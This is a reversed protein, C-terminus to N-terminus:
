PDLSFVYADHLDNLDGPVLDIASTFAVQHGNASLLPGFSLDPIHITTPGPASIWTTTDALRDFLFVSLVLSHEPPPPQGPVLDTAGSTFAVYRGDASIASQNSYGNGGGAGSISRSVLTTTRASRDYVFVQDVESDSGASFAVAGGDASITVRAGSQDGIRVRGGTTRDYLYLGGTGGTDIGQAATFALFRGDASMAFDGASGATLPTGQAHSVLLTKGTTRDWLFLDPLPGDADIQGPVLDTASSGFAIWRGDDSIQPGFSDRGAAVTPGATSHSVLTTSGTAHDWLYINVAPHGHRGTALHPAIGAFVVWRGDPTIHPQPAPLDNPPAQLRAILLTTRALRDFLFYSLPSPAGAPLGTAGGSAYVIWRGDPTIASCCGSHSVLITTRTARDRLFIGGPGTQGAVLHTADSNFVVWRGDGSVAAADSDSEPTISPLDPAHRSVTALSASPIDYAFANTAENYDPVDSALNDADSYFLVRTGDASIVAARSPGDATTTASAAAHSLLTTVGSDRDFLFVNYTPHPDIQGAVLDPEFSLFTVYRGDASLSPATAAGYPSLTTSHHKRSVLTFTRAIRDYLYLNPAKANDAQPTQPPVLHGPLSLLALYRGDASIAIGGGEEGEAQKTTLPTKTGLVRDCLVTQVGDVALYRGDASIAIEGAPGLRTVAESVRDYVFAAPGPPNGPALDGASSVFAVWRGDASLVPDQSYGHGATVPSASAHSVLQFSRAVRDYLFVTERSLGRQGPVLDAAASTFAVYRGDGSIALGFFDDLDQPPGQAILTSAGAVRDYLYLAGARISGAPAPVLDTAQSTYAVWRGDGSIVAEGSEGNAALAPSDAAHSVLSTAGTLLDQVFLDLDANLDRQGPALNTQYSHFLAYRGDDSLSPRYQISENTPGVAGTGSVESPAVQSILELGAAFGATGGALCSVSTAGTLLLFLACRRGLPSFGSSRM